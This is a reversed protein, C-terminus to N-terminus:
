IGTFIEAIRNIKVLVKNKIKEREGGMRSAPPIIHDLTDGTREIATELAKTAAVQLVNEFNHQLREVQQPKLKIELNM